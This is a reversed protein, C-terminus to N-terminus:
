AAHRLALPVDECKNNNVSQLVTGHSVSHFTSWVLLLMMAEHAM